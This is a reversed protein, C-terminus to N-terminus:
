PGELQWEAAQRESAAKYGEEQAAVATNELAEPCNNEGTTRM